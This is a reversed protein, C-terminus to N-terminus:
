ILSRSKSGEAGRRMFLKLMNFSNADAPVNEFRGMNSVRFVAYLGLALKVVDHM